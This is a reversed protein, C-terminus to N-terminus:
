KCSVEGEPWGPGRWVIHNARWTSPAWSEGRCWRYLRNDAQSKSPARLCRASGAAKRQCPRGIGSDGRNLCWPICVRVRSYKVWMNLLLCDQVLRFFHQYKGGRHWGKSCQKRNCWKHGWIEPARAGEGGPKRLFASEKEGGSCFGWRRVNKNLKEREWTSRGLLVRISVFNFALLYGNQTTIKLMYPCITADSSVKM